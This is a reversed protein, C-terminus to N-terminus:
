FNTDHMYGWVFVYMMCFTFKGLCICTMNPFKVTLFINKYLNFMFQQSVPQCSNSNLKLPSCDM